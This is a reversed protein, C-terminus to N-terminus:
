ILYVLTIVSVNYVSHVLISSWLWNTKKYITAMIIGSLFPSLLSYISTRFDGTLQLHPIAFLLSSVIIYVWVNVDTMIDSLIKRYLIEELLPALVGAVLVAVFYTGGTIMTTNAPSQNPQIIINLIIGLIYMFLASLLVLPILFKIPIERKGFELRNNRDLFYYFGITIIYSFFTICYILTKIDTIFPQFLLFSIYNSILLHFAIISLANFVDFIKKM